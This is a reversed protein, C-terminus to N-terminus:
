RDPMFPKGDRWEVKRLDYLGGSGFQGGADLDLILGAVHEPSALRNEDKMRTFRPRAPFDADEAGRILSQMDTDVVGPAVASVTVGEPRAQQELAVCRTIMNLASKSACYIAWGAYPHWGAGSSINIIRRAARWGASERIFGIMLLVPAMLNVHMADAIRDPAHRDLFGMPTLVGANNILVVDGCSSPVDQMIRTMVKGAQEADRLDCTYNRRAPAQSEPARSISFLLHGRHVVADALARGIGRTTGTVIYASTM